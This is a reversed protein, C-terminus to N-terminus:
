KRTAVHCAQCIALQITCQKNMQLLQRRASHALVAETHVACIHVLIGLFSSLSRCFGDLGDRRGNVPDPARRPVQVNLHQCSLARHNVLVSRAPEIVARRVFGTCFVLFAPCTKLSSQCSQRPQTGTHYLSNTLLRQQCGWRWRPQTDM